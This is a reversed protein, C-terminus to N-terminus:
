DVYSMEGRNSDDQRSPRTSPQSLTRDVSVADVLERAAAVAARVKDAHRPDAEAV